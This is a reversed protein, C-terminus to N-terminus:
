KKAGAKEKLKKLFIEYKELEGEKKSWKKIKLLSIEQKSAVLLATNTVYNKICCFLCGL